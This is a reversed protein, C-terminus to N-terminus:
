SRLVLYVDSDGSTVAGNLSLRIRSALLDKKDAILTNTPDVSQLQLWVDGSALPSVEVLVTPSGVLATNNKIYVQCERLQSCDQESLIIGSSGDNLNVNSSTLKALSLVSDGDDASLEMSLETNTLQTRLADNSADITRAVATTYDLDSINPNKAM